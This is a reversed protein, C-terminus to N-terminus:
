PASILELTEVIEKFSQEGHKMKQKVLEVCTVADEMSDHGRDSTQIQKNLWKQALWKLGPKAPPGRTHHYIVSTDVVKSHALKLAGLDNELSHGILTTNADVMGPALLKRQIDSLSFVASSMLEESLGSFQTLYSTVPASPKVLSDFVVLATEFDVITM